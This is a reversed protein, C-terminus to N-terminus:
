WVLHGYIFSAALWNAVILFVTLCFVWRWFQFWIWRGLKWGPTSLAREIDDKPEVPKRLADAKGRFHNALWWAAMILPIRIM